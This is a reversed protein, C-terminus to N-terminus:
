QLSQSATSLPNVGIQRLMGVVTILPLGELATPDDSRLAEFLSIGLGEWRFSGACDYPKDADIYSEIDAIPLDRFVVETRVCSESLVEEDRCLAVATFFEVAEGRCASLQTIARERTGPKGLVADGLRVTQDSGLVLQSANGASVSLAKERALRQALAKAGEAVRPTEDVEPAIACFPLGLRELLARRYPSTSALILSTQM